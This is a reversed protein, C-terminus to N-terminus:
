LMRLLSLILVIAVVTGVVGPGGNRGSRSYRYYGGGGAFLLILVAAVADSPSVRFLLHAMVRTIALAWAIGVALSTAGANKEPIFDTLTAITVRITMAILTM